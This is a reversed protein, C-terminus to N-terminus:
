GTPAIAIPYDGRGRGRGRAARMHAPAAGPVGGRFSRPRQQPWASRPPARCLRPFGDADTSLMAPPATVVVNNAHPFPSHSRYGSGFSPVPSPSPSPSHEKAGPVFSTANPSLPRDPRSRNNRSFRFGRPPRQSFEDIDVVKPPKPPPPPGPDYYPNFPHWLIGSSPQYLMGSITDFSYWVRHPSPSMLTTMEAFRKYLM